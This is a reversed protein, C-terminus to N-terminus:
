VVKAKEETPALLLNICFTDATGIQQSKLIKAGNTSIVSVSLGSDIDSNDGNPRSCDCLQWFLQQDATYLISNLKTSLQVFNKLPNALSRIYM